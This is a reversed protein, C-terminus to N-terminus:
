INIIRKAKWFHTTWYPSDLKSLMVGKSTSAHMFRNNGVYSGVHRQRRGTRFFVLDGLKLNKRSVNHGAKGQLATSRPIARNFVDRYTLQVFGSCDIGRKSTGGLKYPTKKWYKYHRDLKRLINSSKGKKASLFADKTKSDPQKPSTSCGALGYASVIICIFILKSLGIPRELITNHITLTIVNFM